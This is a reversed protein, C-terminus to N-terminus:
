EFLRLTIHLVHTCIRPLDLDRWFHKLCAAGQWGTERGTGERLSKDQEFVLRARWAGLGPDRQQAPLFSPCTKHLDGPLWLVLENFDLCGSERCTM